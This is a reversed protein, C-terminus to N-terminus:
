KGEGMVALRLDDLAKDFEERPFQQLDNIQCQWALHEGAEVVAILKSLIPKLQSDLAEILAEGNDGDGGFKLYQLDGNAFDYDCIDEALNRSELKETLAKILDSTM